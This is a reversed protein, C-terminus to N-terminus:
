GLCGAVCLTGALRRDLPAFLFALLARPGLIL